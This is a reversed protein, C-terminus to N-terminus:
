GLGHRSALDHLPHEYNKNATHRRDVGIQYEVLEALTQGGLVLHALVINICKFSPIAGSGDTGISPPIVPPRPVDLGLPQEAVYASAYVM